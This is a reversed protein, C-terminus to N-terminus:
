RFRDIQRLATIAGLAVILVLLMIPLGVFAGAIVEQYLSCGPWCDFAGGAGTDDTDILTWVILWGALLSAALTVALPLFTRRRRLRWLLVPVVVTGLGIVAWGPHVGRM